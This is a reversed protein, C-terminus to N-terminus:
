IEKFKNSDILPHKHITEILRENTIHTYIQTTSIDSHGLLAQISRLDAGNSLLHTAFSHRLIHPSIKNPDLGANLAANKLNLAFNQRTMYGQKARSPFLYIKSSPNNKEIFLYRFPLYKKINETARANTIVLREKSGKGQIIFVERINDDGLLIDSAKLSILESVRLGSAYLLNIMASLRIGEPSKDKGSYDVLNIIENVSLPNPLSATYKPISAFTAPNFPLIRETVLFNYYNRVAAIKRATSRSKLNKKALYIIFSEIDNTTVADQDINLKAIFVSFDLLDKKYAIVSNKSGGGEALFNELFREIYLM